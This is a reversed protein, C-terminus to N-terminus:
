MADVSDLAAPDSLMAINHRHVVEEPGNWGLASEYEASHIGCLQAAQQSNYNIVGRAIEAGSGEDMIRVAESAAFQGSVSRVGRGFLSSGELIAKAAGGDVLLTGRVPLAMIWRKHSRVAKSRPLFRTGVETAGHLVIADIDQPRKAHIICTTCGAARALQAAHLKTAMGGTGWQSGAGDVNGMVEAIDEVVRIAQAPPKGPEPAKSPNSTYLADVDTALFLWRAGAMTAVLASLTDNDGFKLESIAVSDNENVIPVVGLEILQAFTAQANQYGVQSGLADASLLVQAIPQNLASFLSEYQAMLRPQGIAAMAQLESMGTPRKELGLAQCGVGVAGSSVLIVGLGNARMACISEVLASLTSLALHRGDARLISSTGVKIVVITDPSKGM